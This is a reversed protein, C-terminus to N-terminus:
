CSWTGFVSVNGAVPLSTTLVVPQGFNSVKGSLGNAAVKGESNSGGENRGWALHDTSGDDTLFTNLQYGASSEPIRTIEISIHFPKSQGAAALGSGAPAAGVEGEVLSVVGSEYTDGAAPNATCTINTVTVDFGPSAFQLDTGSSTPSSTTSGSGTMSPTTSISSAPGASKGGCAGLLLAALVVASGLGAVSRWSV